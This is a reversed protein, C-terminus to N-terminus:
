SGDEEVIWVSGYALDWRLDARGYVKCEALVEAATRPGGALVKM